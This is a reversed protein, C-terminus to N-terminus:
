CSKEEAIEEWPQLVGLNRAFSDLDVKPDLIADTTFDHHYLDGAKHGSGPKRWVRLGQSDATLKRDARQRVTKASVRVKATTRPDLGAM